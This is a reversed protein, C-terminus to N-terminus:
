TAVPSRYAPFYRSGVAGRAENLARCADRDNVIRILYIPVFANSWRLKFTRLGERAGDPMGGTLLRLGREAAFDQMGRMLLYSAHWALEQESIATHLIQLMDGHVIGCAMAGIEDAQAARFFVAEPLAAISAFHAAPFDFLGGKLGRRSLLGDYVPAFALREDHDGVVDFSGIAEARNLRERSRKSLRPIPLAPDFVFHEKLIVADISPDISRPDLGPQAVATVTVLDVFGERLAVIDDGDGIWLYPWPGIGDSRDSGPIPRRLLVVRGTPDSIPEGINGLGAAYVPRNFPFSGTRAPPTVIRTQRPADANRAQDGIM